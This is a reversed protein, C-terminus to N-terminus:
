STLSAALLTIYIPRNTFRPLRYLSSCSRQVYDFYVIIDCHSHYDLFTLNLTKKSSTTNPLPASLLLYVIPRLNSDQGSRKVYSGPCTTWVCTGRDGLLIFQYHGTPTFPLHRASFICSRFIRSWLVPASFQSRFICSWLQLPPFHLVPSIFSREPDPFHLVVIYGLHCPPKSHASM